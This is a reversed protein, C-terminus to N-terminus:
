TDFRSLMETLVTENLQIDKFIDKELDTEAHVELNVRIAKSISIATRINFVVVEEYESKRVKGFLSDILTTFVSISYVFDNLTDFLSANNNYPPTLRHYIKKLDEVQASQILLCERAIENKLRKEDVQIQKKNHEALLEVTKRYTENIEEQAKTSKSSNIAQSVLTAMAVVMTLFTLIPGLSGGFFDGFHAWNEMTGDLGIGFRWLYAGVIGGISLAAIIIAGKTVSREEM